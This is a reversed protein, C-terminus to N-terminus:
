WSPALFDGSVKLAVGIYPIATATEAGTRYRHDLWWNILLILTPSDFFAHKKDPCFTYAIFPGLRHMTNNLGLNREGSRFADQNYLAHDVAWRAGAALGFDTVYLLDVDNHIAWNRNQVTIDYTPEYFVNDGARLHMDNHMVRLLSRVAIPGVKLQLTAGLTLISGASTYSTLSDLQNESYDDNASEFSQFLDFSGFYGIFEYSAWLRLISLPQVEVMPGIRLFAPTLGLTLGAGAYNDKFLASESEYLRAQFRINAFDLLGLPNYRLALINQWRLAFAPRTPHLRELMEEKTEKRPNAEAATRASPDPNTQVSRPRTRERGIAPDNSHANAEAQPPGDGVSDHPAASDPPTLTSDTATDSDAATDSDSDSDSDAATDSDSDAAADSASPQAAAPDDQSYAPATALAVLTFGVMASLHIRLENM